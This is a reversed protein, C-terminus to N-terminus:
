VSMWRRRAKLARARCGASIEISAGRQTWASGSWELVRAQGKRGDYSPAGVAVVKGDASLSVDSGSAGGCANEGKQNWTSGNHRLVHACGDGRSSLPAGLALVTGFLDFTLAKVGPYVAM